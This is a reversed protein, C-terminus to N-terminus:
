RFFPMHAIGLGALESPIHALAALQYIADWLLGGAPTIWLLMYLGLVAGNGLRTMGHALHWPLYPQWIRFGDLPPVPLLNLLMAGLQLLVLMALAAWFNVRPGFFWAPDSVILFPSTIAITFVASALPGAAAVVSAWLRSRLADTRVYVAGGPLGIGGLLVFLMPLLFSFMPDVYRRPDLSLYGARSIEGDGGLFAAVAHGFEHLCLSVLWGALVFALTVVTVWQEPVGFFLAAGSAVLAGVLGLFIPSIRIAEGLSSAPQRSLRAVQRRAAPSQLYARLDYLTIGQEQLFPASGPVDSYLLALLLHIPEVRRHGILAAERAAYRRVQDADTGMVSSPISRRLQDPERGIAQLAERITSVDLLRALLDLPGSAEEVLKAANRGMAAPEVGTLM